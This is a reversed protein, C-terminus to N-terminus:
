LIKIDKTYKGLIDTRSGKDKGRVTRTFNTTKKATFDIWCGCKGCPAYFNNVDTPNLNGLLCDGSKSQFGTVKSNCVPCTCEYNINDYMGM